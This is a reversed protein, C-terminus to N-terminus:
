EIVVSTPPVSAPSPSGVSYALARAETEDSPIDRVWIFRNAALYTQSSDDDIALDYFNEPERDWKTSKTEGYCTLSHKALVDQVYGFSNSWVVVEHGQEQFVRLMALVAASKSGELTGKVDFAIRM